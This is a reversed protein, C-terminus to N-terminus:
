LDEELDEKTRKIKVALKRITDLDDNADSYFNKVKHVMRDSVELTELSRKVSNRFIDDTDETLELAKYLRTGDRFAKLATIKELVQNLAKFDDSKGKLRTQNQDNKEFFWHILEKLNTENINKVPNESNLKIGLFKVINAKNLSDSIYGVYFSTDNLEQINYFGENEVIEYIEYAVLLREVYDKKAGIIKALSRCAETFSTKKFQTKRLQSLFNAKESITWSKIGAIHHFGLYKRIDDEQDFVLCPIDTPTFKKEDFVRKVIKKKVSAITYDNLLKVAALRRNGEVVKYKTNESEVVWLQAGLFFDNEGISQMLALTVAHLLLYNIIKNQSNHHLSKPLRLNNKDLILNKYNITKYQEKQM